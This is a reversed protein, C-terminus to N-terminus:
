RIDLAVLLNLASACFACLRSPASLLLFSSTIRAPRKKNMYGGIEEEAGKTLNARQMGADRRKQTEAGFKSLVQPYPAPVYVIKPWLPFLEHV